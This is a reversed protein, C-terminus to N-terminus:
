PELFGPVPIQTQVYETCVCVDKRAGRQQRCVATPLLNRIRMGPWNWWLLCGGDCLWLVSDVTLPPQTALWGAMRKCITHGAAHAAGTARCGVCPYSGPDRSRRMGAWCCGALATCVCYTGSLGSMYVLTPNGVRRSRAAFGKPAARPRICRKNSEPKRLLSHRLVAANFVRQLRPLSLPVSFRCRWRTANGGVCM